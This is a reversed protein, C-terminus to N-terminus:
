FIMKQSGSNKEFNIRKRENKINEMFFDLYGNEPNVIEYPVIESPVIENSDPFIRLYDMVLTNLKFFFDIQHIVDKKNKLLMM